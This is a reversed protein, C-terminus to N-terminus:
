KVNSHTAELPIVSVIVSCRDGMVCVFWMLFFPCEHVNLYITPRRMFYDAMILSVKKSYMIIDYVIIM